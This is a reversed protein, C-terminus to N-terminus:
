GKLSNNGNRVCCEKMPTHKQRGGSLENPAFGVEWADLTLGEEGPKVTM